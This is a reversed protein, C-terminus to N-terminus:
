DICRCFISDLENLRIMETVTDILCRDSLNEVVVGHRDYYFNPLGHKKILNRINQYTYVQGSFTVGNVEVFIDINDDSTNAICHYSYIRVM